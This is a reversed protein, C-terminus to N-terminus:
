GGNDFYLANVKKEPLQEYGQMLLLVTSSARLNPQQFDSAAMVASEAAWFLASRCAAM